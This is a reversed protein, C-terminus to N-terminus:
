SGAEWRRHPLAPPLASLRLQSSIIRQAEIVALLSPQESSNPAIAAWEPNGVSLALWYSSGSAYGDSPIALRAFFDLAEELSDDEHWTTMVTDNSTSGAFRREGLDDEVVAWDVIDHFRECGSGWACFYVMGANLAAKAFDSLEDTTVRTTDAAVFLRFHKSPLELSSPWTLRSLEIVSFQNEDAM